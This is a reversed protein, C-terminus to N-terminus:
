GAEEDRRHRALLVQRTAIMAPVTAVVAIPGALLAAGALVGAAAGLRRIFSVAMLLGPRRATNVRDLTLLLGGFVIIAIAVGAALGVAIAILVDTM